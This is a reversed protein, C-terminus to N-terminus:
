AGVPVEIRVIATYDPIGSEPSRKARDLLVEGEPWHVQLTGQAVPAVLATGALEGTESRLIVPSGDNVGLAMADHRSILVSGRDAGTHGDRSAQVMSNFQKGRRTTVLFAGEPVERRPLAVVSFHAKGDATPFKWGACLMPGGYQFQDGEASLTRVLAYDPVVRAIEERIEATGSFHVLKALEPKARQVLETFVQWEPRAERVRPGPIEPSFIVRRETTTETVGGEMEYRTQVPLLVVTDAPPVLM